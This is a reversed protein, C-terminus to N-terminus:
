ALDMFGRVLMMFGSVILIVEGVCIMDAIMGENFLLSHPRRRAISLLWRGILFAAALLSLGILLEAYYTSFM